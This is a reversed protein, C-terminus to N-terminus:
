QWNVNWGWTRIADRLSKITPGGTRMEGSVPGIYRWLGGMKFYKFELGHAKITKM